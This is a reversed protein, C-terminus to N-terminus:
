RRDRPIPDSQYQFIDSDAAGYVDADDLPHTLQILMLQAPEDEGAVLQVTAPGMNTIELTITGVFGPDIKPATLHVSLGARAWSSRGEVLGMLDNPMEVRELTQALVFGRPELNFTEVEEEHTWLDGSSFLSQRVRIAPIHEPLGRSRFRTFKRGLRLNISVPGIRSDSPAPEISLSRSDLRRRLEPKSLIM